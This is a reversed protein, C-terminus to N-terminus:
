GLQAAPGKSSPEPCQLWRDAWDGIAAVVPRLALGKETLQYEIRVPTEAFVRRVVIGESELERLRESLMRDSIDPIAERLDTFRHAGALMERVIAGSWRRGILEVAKHFDPCFNSNHSM